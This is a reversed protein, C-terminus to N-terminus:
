TSFSNSATQLYNNLIYKIVHVVVSNGLCDYKKQRSKVTNTYGVPFGFLKEIEEIEFLRIKLPTQRRDVLVNHNGFSATVPRSNGIPYSYYPIKENTTDSHFSCQWRSRSKEGHKIHTFNQGDYVVRYTHVSTSPVTRNLCQIYNESIQKTNEPDVLIDNWTQCKEIPKTLPFTTWFLRKRTQVGFKAADLKTMYVPLGIKELEDTILKQNKKSMSANNEIVFHLNPNNKYVYQICRVLDYFLKSSAGELGRSDGQIHSLSSLNTCPFGGVILDCEGLETLMTETIKTVDGLNKHDPYHTQYIELAHPKIESYALCVADPFITHIAQEFGGIGSFLSIYRM